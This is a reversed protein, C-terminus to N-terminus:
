PQMLTANQSASSADKMEVFSQLVAFPVGWFDEM